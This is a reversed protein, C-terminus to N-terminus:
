IRENNGKKREVRFLVRNGVGEPNNAIEKLISDLPFVDRWRKDRDASSNYWQVKEGATHAIAAAILFDWPKAYYLFKVIKGRQGEYLCKGAALSLVDLATLANGGYVKCRASFRSEEEKYIKAIDWPVESKRRPFRVVALSNNETDDKFYGALNEGNCWVWKDQITLFVSYALKPLLYLSAIVHGKSDICMLASGFNSSNEMYMKTGDVVDGIWTVTDEDQDTAIDDDELIIRDNKIKDNPSLTFGGKIFGTLYHDIIQSADYATEKSGLDKPQRLLLEKGVAEMTDVLVNVRDLVDPKLNKQINEYAKRTKNFAEKLNNKCM